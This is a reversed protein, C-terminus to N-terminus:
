FTGTIAVGSQSQSQSPFSRPQLLAHCLSNKCHILLSLFLLSASCYFRRCGSMLPMSREGVWELTELVELVLTLLQPGFKCYEAKQHFMVM